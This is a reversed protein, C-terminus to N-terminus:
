FVCNEIINFFLDLFILESVEGESIAEMAAFGDGFMRVEADDGCARAICERMIEDDDIVYIM